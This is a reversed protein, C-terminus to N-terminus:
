RLRYSKGKGPGSLYTLSPKGKAPQDFTFSIHKGSLEDYITVLGDKSIEYTGKERGSGHRFVYTGDSGFTGVSGAKFRLKGESMMAAVQQGNMQEALASLPAILVAVTAILLRM